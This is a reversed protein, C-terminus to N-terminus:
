YRKKYANTKRNLAMFAALRIAAEMSSPDAIGKGAIDFATGHDPSTRAFPLGLTVNVGSDRAIMKLPILGQDHYLCIVADFKGRYADYFLADAPFPGVVSKRSFKKVAPIIIRNEETGFLGSEGGHPNLACVGVKPRSINFDNKLTQLTAKITNIIKQSTLYRPVEKLPLHRSVLSVRLPGGTLMMVFEEIGFSDALFETHGPFNFGAKKASSKNIPATVIGDAINARVLGCAKEIYEIAAKGYARREKGFSFSALPVNKLDLIAVSGSSFKCSKKQHRKLFSSTKHLIRSDGVLIYDALRKVSNKALSKLIIEAGIGSPDGMTLALVPKNSPSIPM